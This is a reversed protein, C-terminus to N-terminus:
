GAGPWAPERPRRLSPRHRGAPRGAAGDLYSKIEAGGPQALILAERVPKMVYYATLILFINFTLLLLRGSEGRHVDAFLSLFRDLPLKSTASVPVASM